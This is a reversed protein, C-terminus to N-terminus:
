RKPEVFSELATLVAELASLEDLRQQVLSQDIHGQGRYSHHQAVDPSWYIRGAQAYDAAGKAAKVLKRAADLLAPHELKPQEIIFDATGTLMGPTLVQCRAMHKAFAAFWRQRPADFGKQRLLAASILYLESPLADRLTEIVDKPPVHAIRLLKLFREVMVVHLPLQCTTGDRQLITATGTSLETTLRAIEEPSPQWHGLPESVAAQDDSEPTFMPAFLIELEHEELLQAAKPAFTSLDGHHEELHRALHREAQPKLPRPRALLEALCTKLADYM